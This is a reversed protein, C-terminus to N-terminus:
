FLLSFFHSKKQWPQFPFTNTMSHCYMNSSTTIKTYAMYVWLFSFYAINISVSRHNSSHINHQEYGVPSMCHYTWQLWTNEELWGWFVAVIHYVYWTLSSTFISYTQIVKYAWGQSHFYLCIYIYMYEYVSWLNYGWQSNCVNRFKIYALSAMVNELVNLNVLVVCLKCCYRTFSSIACQCSIHIVM